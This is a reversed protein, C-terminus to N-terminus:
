HDALPIKLTMRYFDYLNRIKNEDYMLTEVSGRCSTWCSDCKNIKSAQLLRHKLDIINDHIINGFPQDRSDICFSVDGQSDINLFNIGARCPHKGNGQNISNGFKALYGTLSVFSNYKKKLYILHSSVDETPNSINNKGRGHSYLTIMYTVGLKKSLQILPEIEQLNDDMLVSIMHVRQHNHCRRNNLIQLAKVAQNFAGDQGRQTDHKQPDAYDLSISVEQMGARFLRRANEDNIHWGNCIMVPFNNRALIRTIDIIDKHLLPEGGGISVIQPGIAGLKEVIIRLDSISLFPLKAYESRWFDCIRCRFNCRYCIQLNIHVIDKRLFSLLYRTKKLQERTSFITVEQQLYM